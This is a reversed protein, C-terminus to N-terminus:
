GRMEIPIGEWGAKVERLLQAVEDLAAEDNKLNAALLRRSMYEYLEALNAAIEGGREPDLSLTLGEIIGLAKGLMEGKAAVEGRSMHGKAQSVRALVTDLMTNIVEHPKADTLTGITGVDQYSRMQFGM